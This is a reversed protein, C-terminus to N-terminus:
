GAASTATRACGPRWRGGPGRHAGRRDAAAVLDRGAYPRAKQVLGIPSFWSLTGDGVDGVARIAYSVGLVAGALGSATRANETIQTTVSEVGVFMLGIVTFSLGLSISGAVPLDLAILSVAVLAGVVVDM